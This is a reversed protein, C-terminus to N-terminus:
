STKIPASRRPSPQARAFTVATAASGASAHKAHMREHAPRGVFHVAVDSVMRVYRQVWEM